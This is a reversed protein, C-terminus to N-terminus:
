RRHSRILVQGSVLLAIILTTPVKTIIRCKPNACLTLLNRKLDNPNLATLKHLEAFTYTDKMNYLLLICIQPTAVSLEKRKNGEFVARMDGSGMNTQWTLRRGTHSSLYYKQFVDCCKTIEAPLQCKGPVQTPWFGSTLVHVNLDVGKIPNPTMAGVHQKFGEIAQSSSKMDQFMGELKSTFQYGCESKLKAIMNKEADDSVSRNLLLRKALHQKYYKEFIDKESIFRFLIMVSDLVAETEEENVNAKNGKRLKEDIFLSIFEPSRPNLNIFHAFAQNLTHEFAKDNNGMALSLIDDYKAKLDLLTQVYTLPKAIMSENKVIAVGEEKVHNELCKRMAAHGHTVRNLLNYMRSLDDIKDDKLMHVMGSEPMDIITQLYNTLLEREVVEKIYPETGADLYHNVRDTEEKLRREAKKMYESASNTSIFNQAESQYFAASTKLFTQEFYNEYVDRTNIGLDVLMQTVNKLLGRNVMEGTREKRISTLLTDILRPQIKSHEAVNSYFLHLGLDYVSQVNKQVVYIRDMYMLIDRIMLSSQTHDAWATNLVQLFRGDDASAVSSAVQQLHQNVVAKLGMYLKDGHKHLVMNYASRYLEEFSLGSANKRHIENIAKELLNWTKAAYNADMTVQHRFPKIVIKTKKSAM